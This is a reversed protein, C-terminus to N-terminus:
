TGCNLRVVSFKRSLSDLLQLLFRRMQSSFRRTFTTCYCIFIASGITASNEGKLANAFIENASIHWHNEHIKDGILRLYKEESSRLFPVFFTGKMGYVRHPGKSIAELLERFNAVVKVHTPVTLFSLLVGAYVSTIVSLLLLWACTATHYRYLSTGFM